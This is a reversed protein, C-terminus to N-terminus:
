GGTQKVPANGTRVTGAEGRNWAPSEATAPKNTEFRLVNREDLFFHAGKGSVPIAAVQFGTGTAEAEFRYDGTEPSRPLCGGAALEELSGYRGFQLMHKAEAEGISRVEAQARAQGAQAREESISMFASFFMCTWCALTLASLATGAVAFGKGELMGESNRIRLLAAIGLALGPVGFPFVVAVILSAIALMSTQPVPVPPRAPPPAYVGRAPGAAPGAEPAGSRRQQREFCLPCLKRGDAEALDAPPFAGMCGDCLAKGSGLPNGCSGCYKETPGSDAGCKPCLM